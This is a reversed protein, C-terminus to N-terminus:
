DRPPSSQEDHYQEQFWDFHISARIIKFRGTFYGLRSIGYPGYRVGFAALDRSDALVRPSTLHYSTDDYDTANPSM